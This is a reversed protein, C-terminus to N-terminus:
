QFTYFSIGIPIAASHLGQRGAGGFVFLFYAYKFFTLTGFNYLQGACLLLFRGRSDPRDILAACVLFNIITGAIMVAFFWLGWGAYFVCSALFLVTLGGQRGFRRAVAYFVLVVLPLFLLLFFPDTFLM